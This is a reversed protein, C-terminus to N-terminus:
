CRCRAHRCPAYRRRLPLCTAAFIILPLMASAYRPSLPLIMLPMMLAYFYRRFYDAFLMALTAAADFGAHRCRRAAHTARM